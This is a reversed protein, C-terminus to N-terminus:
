NTCVAPLNTRQDEMVKGGPAAAEDEPALSRPVLKAEHPFTETELSRFWGTPLSDVTRPYEATCRTRAVNLDVMGTELGCLATM